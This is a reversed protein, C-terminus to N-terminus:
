QRKFTNSQVYRITTTKWIDCIGNFSNPLPGINKKYFAVLLSRLYKMNKRINHSYGTIQPYSTRILQLFFLKPDCKTHSALGFDILLLQGNKKIIINQYHVDGHVTNTRCLVVILEQLNRFIVNLTHESLNFNLFDELIYLGSPILEMVIVAYKKNNNKFYQIAIPKLTMKTEHYFKQQLKYEVFADRKNQVARTIKAAYCQNTTLHCIKCVTGYHGNGLLGHIDFNQFVKNIIHGYKKILINKIKTTESIETHNIIHTSSVNRSRSKRSRSKGATHKKPKKRLVSKKRERTM